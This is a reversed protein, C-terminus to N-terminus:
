QIRPDVGMDAAKAQLNIENLLMNKEELPIEKTVSGPVNEYVQGFQGSGVKQRQAARAAMLRMEELSVGQQVPPKQRIVKLVKGLM